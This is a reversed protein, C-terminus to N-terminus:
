ARKCFTHRHIISLFFPLDALFYRKWLRRPEHALRWLWELGVKQMWRPARRRAGVVFDLSAGIGISVPVGLQRSYRAIWKEQKPCGLAMLLLDPRAQRIIELTTDNDDCEGNANGVREPSSCAADAHPKDPTMIKAALKEQM